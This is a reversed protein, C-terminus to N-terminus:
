LYSQVSISSRGPFVHSLESILDKCPHCSIRHYTKRSVGQNRWRSLYVLQPYNTALYTGYTHYECGSSYDRSDFADIWACLGDILTRSDGQLMDRVVEPQMLQHHTVFSVKSKRSIRKMQAMFREYHEQYPFHYEHSISLRQKGNKYLFCTPRLLITDADCILVGQALSIGAGYLKIVQQTTWGKRTVGSSMSIANLLRDPLFQSEDVELIKDDRFDIDVTSQGVLLIRTIPNLCNELLGRIVSGMLEFDKEAVPILVEIAPLQSEPPMDSLLVEVVQRFKLSSHSLGYSQTTKM